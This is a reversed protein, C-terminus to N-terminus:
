KGVCFESFIVDLLDEVDIRGTIRGICDGATRLMDARLDLDVLGTDASAKLLRLTEKLANRYRVRSILSNNSGKTTERIRESVQSILLDIGYSTETSISKGAGLARGDDKSIIHLVPVGDIDPGQQESSDTIEQLWIVLDAQKGREEARRIGEQEVIDSSDRIGATDSVIVAFGDLDLYVDIVDRTTGAQETVIAVDRKALCNLLSSKGANPKGMIAVRFGDRIIEGARNDNLHNEIESKLTEIEVFGQQSIEEPVDEEESFDLEAEILARAHIIRRRWDEYLDRLSGISQALAQKRQEETESAILDAIGEIETLDLKGNEFARRSFEGPEALRITDFSTLENLIAQVVAAGGHIHLEACDEGTFSNPSPFWLIIGRDLVQGDRGRLDSLKAVRPEPLGGILSELAMKAQVGSIRIVAIGSPVAGSSLAVITQCESM